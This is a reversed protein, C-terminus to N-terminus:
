LNTWSTGDWVQVVSDTLNYILVGEGAVTPRDPTEFVPLQLGYDGSANGPGGILVWAPGGSGDDGVYMYLANNSFYVDGESPSGPLTGSSPMAVGGSGQLTIKGTGANITVANGSQATITNTFIRINGADLQNTFTGNNGTIGGNTASISGNTTTINYNTGTISTLMSLTEISVDKLTNTDTSTPAQNFALAEIANTSSAGRDTVTQLTDSEITLLGSDDFTLEARGTTTNVTATIRGFGQVDNGKLYKGTVSDVATLFAQDVYLSDNLLESINDQQGKILANPPTFIINGYFANGKVNQFDISGRGSPTQNVVDLPNPGVGPQYVADQISEADGGENTEAQWEFGNYILIDGSVAGVTDVDGIENISNITSTIDPKNQIFALSTNDTENWDSQVPVRVNAGGITITTAEISSVTTNALTTAGNVVLSGAISVNGTTGLTASSLAGAVSLETLNAIGSNALDLQDGIPIEKLKNGDDTDVVLPFRNAM